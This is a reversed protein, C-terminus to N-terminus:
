TQMIQPKILLLVPVPDNPHGDVGQKWQTRIADDVDPHLAVEKLKTMHTIEIGPTGPKVDLNQCLIHLSELNPLADAQIAIDLTTDSVISIRKISRLHGSLINVPGLEDGIVKMYILGGVTSLGALIVEWSLGTSCLCLEKIESLGTVFAPLETISVRSSSPGTSDKSLKGRLKLSDLKGAVPVIGNMFERSCAKFDISLSRNLELEDPGGRIFKTIASSLLLLKAESADSKCWIKVKRLTKMLSILDQFGYRTGTVFGDLTELVSKDRLFKELSSQSRLSEIKSFQLKGLLHKLKPLMLVEKFVKVINRGSLDLTELQNLKNISGSLGDISGLNLSLYKLLVQSQHVVIDDLHKNTLHAFEKLDLVRLVKYRSFDLVAEYSALSAGKAPCVVLTRLRSLHRPLSLQVKVNAPPHVSLRRAEEALKLKSTAGDFVLVFNQSESIESICAYMKDNPRCVKVDGNSSTQTSSIIRATALIKLNEAADKEEEVLGEALWKRKLPNTSVNHERPFLCLYLLCDLNEGLWVQGSPDDFLNQLEIPVAPGQSRGVVAAGVLLEAMKMFSMIQEKTQTSATKLERIRKAFDQLSTKYSKNAEFCDICDEIEYALLRLEAICKAQLLNIHGSPGNDAYCQKIFVDIWGLERKIYEADICEDAGSSLNGIVTTLKSAAATAIAGVLAVAFEM